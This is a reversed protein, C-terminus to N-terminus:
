RPHAQGFGTLGKLPRPGEQRFFNSTGSSRRNAEFFGCTPLSRLSCHSFSSYSELLHPHGQGLALFFIPVETM